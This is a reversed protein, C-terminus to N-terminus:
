KEYTFWKESPRKFVVERHLRSLLRVMASADGTPEKAGHPASIEPVESTSISHSQFNTGAEKKYTKFILKESFHPYVEFVGM